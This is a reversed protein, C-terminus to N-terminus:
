WSLRGVVKLVTERDGSGLRRFAATLQKEETRQRTRESAPLMSEPIALRTQAETLIAVQDIYYRWTTSERGNLGSGQIISGAGSKALEYQTAATRRIAQPTFYPVGALDCYYAIRKRLAKPSRKLPYEAKPLQCRLIPHKPIAQYKGTKQADLEIVDSAMQYRTLSLLDSLRFGTIYAWRLWRAMFVNRKQKAVAHVRSLDDLPVTHNRTRPQRLKKGGFKEGRLQGAAAIAKEVSIPSLTSERRFADVDAQNVEGIPRGSFRLLAGAQYEYGRRTKPSM